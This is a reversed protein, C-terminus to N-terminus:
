FDIKTQESTTSRQNKAERLLNDQNSLLGAALEQDKKGKEPLLEALSNLVRWVSSSEQPARERIYRLLEERSGQGPGYMYMLRHAVDIDSDRKRLGLRDDQDIRAEMDALIGKDQKRILIHQQYIEQINVDLGIQTIRRVDDHAADSFGFLSLWGIYFRTVDDTNIDSIIANFASDRAMELLEAVTVEEGSGKEVSKYKGFVSVAKGFCATLLDAGRFGLAYLSKVEEKILRLVETRVEQYDGIGAKESPRCAVTVSSALADGSISILRADRESDIAWSGTINMEAGLISNCLTTWAETSQHAFMISVLDKTQHEIADFIELLKNEFHYFAREADNEHHHKLATCEETKPTQPTAFTLPYIDAVTRKLWVYFFDSLDAYAIADYYPPDTVVVDLENKAFQNKEGSSANYVKAPIQFSESQIYRLIWDLQNKSGGTRKTFPNSEPYDFVMAIAQRSFPNAITERGPVWRGYSTNIITLRNIFIALFTMVAEDYDSLTPGLQDKIEHLEEVFTQMALLQRDSFMDKWYDIGWGRGSVLDSIKQMKEQPLFEDKLKEGIGEGVVIENKNPLRYKKGNDDFIVALLRQKLKGTRNISENKITGVDTINHCVPCHLGNRSIWGEMETRGERIEFDIKKGDIIPHLHIYKNKKRSLYFQRLLPVEAGCTPNACTGVRAWYYAIPREGEEDAPYLHGIKKEARQLLKEAYYGVDHTLRNPLHVETGMVTGEARQRDSAKEGYIRIYEEESFRIPKGFKQPFEVSGKQIIHAVPNIDNGYSNCGLRAAELPIAGGGAFPDFVKPMRQLFADLAREYATELKKVESHDQHRDLFSFFNKEAEKINKQLQAFEELLDEARSDGDANHAVFILQRAMTLIEENNKNDWKILSFESLMDKTPTSKGKKENEVYRPSFKGIFMMLRHRLNDEMPDVILTHPIDEYPKYPDGPLSGNKGLLLDVAERFAPPCHEDLPDPVISAFVVARCAPLPRRAWWIHFTSIHGHRISKDRVSEASIEKVPM